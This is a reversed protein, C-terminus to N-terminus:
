RQPASRDRDRSGQDSHHVLESRAEGAQASSFVGGTLSELSPKAAVNLGIWEAVAAASPPRQAPEKALCAMIILAAADGPVANQIELGGLREELPEPPEHLVQHTIDGTCFPPQSTLLEYLTAGLAYIDDAAQPRKGTLQQPSMYALTGSTKPASVRSLSDSVV